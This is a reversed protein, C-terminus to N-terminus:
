LKGKNLEMQQDSNSNNNMEALVFTTWTALTASDSKEDCLKELVSSLDPDVKGGFSYV